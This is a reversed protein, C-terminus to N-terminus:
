FIYTSSNVTPRFFLSLLYFSSFFPGEEEAIAAVLQFFELGKVFSKVKWARHLKLIGGETTLEWGNVQKWTDALPTRILTIKILIKVAFVYLILVQELLKKASDESMPHLDKSNCPVCSKTALESIVFICLVIVLTLFLFILLSNCWIYNICWQREGYHYFPVRVILEPLVIM